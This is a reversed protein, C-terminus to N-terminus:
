LKAEVVELADLSVAGSKGNLWVVASHGSLVKAESKTTFIGAFDDRPYCRRYYRVSTGIPYKANWDACQAELQLPTKFRSM